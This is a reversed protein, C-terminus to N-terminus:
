YEAPVPHLCNPPLRWDTSGADEPMGVAGPNRAAQLVRLGIPWSAKVFAVVAVIDKDGLTAAFAPMGFSRKSPDRSEGFRSIALLERDSREWAHGTQNLAPARRPAAMQWLAQGQLTRGHCAACHQLYVTKGRVVSTKDAADAWTATAAAFIPLESAILLTAATALGVVSLAAAILLGRRRLGQWTLLTWRGIPDVAATM